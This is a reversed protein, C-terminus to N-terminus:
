GDQAEQAKRFVVLGDTWVRVLDVTTVCCECPGGDPNAFCPEHNLADSLGRLAQRLQEVEDRLDVVDDALPQMDPGYGAERLRASLSM